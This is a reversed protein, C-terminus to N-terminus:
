LLFTNKDNKSKKSLKPPIKIKIMQLIFRSIM